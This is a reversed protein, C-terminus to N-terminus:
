EHVRFPTTALEKGNRNFFFIQYEGPQAIPPVKYWPPLGAMPPGCAAQVIPLPRVVMWGTDERKRLGYVIKAACRGDTAVMYDNYDTMPRHLVVITDNTRYAPQSTWLHITNPKITDNHSKSLDLVAPEFFGRTAYSTDDNWHTFNTCLPHIYYPDIYYNNVWYATADNGRTVTITLPHFQDLAGVFAFNGNAFWYHNKELHKYDFTYGPTPTGGHLASLNRWFFRKQPQASDVVEISWISAEPTEGEVQLVVASLFDFGCHQARLSSSVLPFVICITLARM